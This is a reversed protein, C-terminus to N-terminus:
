GSRQRKRIIPSLEEPVHLAGTRGRYTVGGGEYYELYTGFAQSLDRASGILRVTHQAKDIHSVTLNHQHAFAVVKGINEDSAGYRQAFEERSLYQRTLPKGEGVDSQTAARYASDLADGHKLTVTVEIPDDGHVPGKVKTGPLPRRQTGPIEVRTM